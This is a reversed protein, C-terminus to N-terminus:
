PMSRTLSGTAASNVRDTAPAWRWDTAFPVGLYVEGHARQEAVSTLLASMRARRLEWEFPDDSLRHLLTTMTASFSEGQWVRPWATATYGALPQPDGSLLAGIARSLVVVDGVALNLGKAGTPPVTHAADGALALRGLAFSELVTARLPVLTREIIQGTELPPHDESISRHRLEAWIREDPWEALREQPGVQLYQRSLRPGRMSHLSMGDPHVCYMGEPAPPTSHALIGLWAAPYSRELLRVPSGGLAAARQLAPRTVGHAGDCGAIVACRLRHRAGQYSFDVSAPSGDAAASEFDRLAVDDVEFLLPRQATLHDHILDKVLEAQGYVCSNRGLLAHFDLHHTRGDLRVYFGRHFEAQQDLRWAAGIERLLDVTPQELIGARVRHEVYDRSRRELLVSSIGQLALLRSLILGAPGAGIIAVDTHTPVPMPAPM